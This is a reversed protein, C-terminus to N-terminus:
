KKVEDVAPASSPIAEFTIATATITEASKIDKDAVVTVVMGIKIADIGVNKETYPAPPVAPKGAKVSAQFAKTAATMEAPTMPIRITFKTKDDAIITRTSPGQPELPNMTIPNAAIVFRDTDVSKVIGTVGTITDPSKPVVGSDTLKKKAATMAAEYGSAYNGDQGLLSGDLLSNKSGWAYGVIILAVVAVAAAVIWMTKIGNM